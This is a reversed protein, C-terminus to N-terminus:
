LLNAGVEFGPLSHFRAFRNGDHAAGRVRRLGDRFIARVNVKFQIEKHIIPEARPVPLIVLSLSIIMSIPVSLVEHSDVRLSNEERLAALTLSEIGQQKETYNATGGKFFMVASVTQKPSPKFIVKLGNVTMESTQAQAAMTMTAMAVTSIINKVKM